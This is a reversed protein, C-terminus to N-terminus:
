KNSGDGLKSLEKNVLRRFKNWKESGWIDTKDACDDIIKIIEKEIAKDYETLISLQGLFYTLGELDNLKRSETINKEVENRIQQPTKTM